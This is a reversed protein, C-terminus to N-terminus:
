RRRGARRLAAPRTDGHRVVALREYYRLTHPSLDLLSAVEAITMTGEAHSADLLAHIVEVSMPGDIEGLNSLVKSMLDDTAM